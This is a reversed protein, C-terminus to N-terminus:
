CTTCSTSGPSCGGLDADGLLTNFVLGVFVMYVVSAGRVAEWRRGTRRRQLLFVTGVLSVVSAFVDSFTTFYSFFNILGFNTQIAIDLQTVVADLSAAALAVRLVVAVSARM